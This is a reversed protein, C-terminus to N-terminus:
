HSSNLRTSKRDEGGAFVNGSGSAKDKCTAADGARCVNIKNVFVSSSGYEMTPADHPADGHGAVADGIRVAGKKNVFVNDSGAILVGGASDDTMRTIGPM